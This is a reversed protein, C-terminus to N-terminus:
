FTPSLLAPPSSPSSSIILLFLQSHSSSVLMSSFLSDRQLPDVGAQSYRCPQHSIGESTWRKTSGRRKEEWRGNNEKTGDMEAIKQKERQKRSEARDEWRKGIRKIERMWINWKAALNCDGWWGYAIFHQSFFWLSSSPRIFDGFLTIGLVYIPIQQKKIADNAHYLLFGVLLWLKFHFVVDIHKCGLM